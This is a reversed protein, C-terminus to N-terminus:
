PRTWSRRRRLVLLAGAALCSVGFALPFASGGGTRPLEQGGSPPSTTSVPGGQPGVPSTTTAPV